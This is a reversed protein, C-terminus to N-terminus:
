KEVRLVMMGLEKATKVCNDTGKGGPFAIVVANPNEMLMVRNRIPGAAKGFKTWDAEFTKCEINNVNAYMRALRDAGPAGGQILLGVDFLDLVKKVAFADDYERGGTVIIDKM